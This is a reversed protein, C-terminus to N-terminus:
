HRKHKKKKIKLKHRSIATQKGSANAQTVTVRVPLKGFRRLLRKGKRNLKLKLTVTQGGALSYHRHIVKVTRKRHRKKSTVATVHNGNLKETTTVDINGNCSQSAAGQCSITLQVGDSIAKEGSIKVSGPGSAFREAAGVDVIPASQKIAVVRPQGYVDTSVGPTLLANSGADVTPSAATEHVDGSSANVLQPDACLNGTGAFPTSASGVGCVDSHDATISGTGGGIGFGGLETSGSDGNVISNQLTLQDTTEGDVGAVGGPASNGSVSSNVLTLHFAGSGATAACGAYVGAGEASGGTSPAGITNAASVLDTATASVPAAPAGCNGRLVSLGAGESSASAGAPGPLSNGIFQDAVSTLNVSGLFEGGGGYVSNPTPAIISNGRFVNGAQRGTLQGNNGNGAYLAGGLAHGSGNSKTISNNTFTNGAITLTATHPSPCFFLITVAGGFVDVATTAVTNGSFTSSTISLPRTFPCTGASGDEIALAGASAVGNTSHNGLFRDSDVTPLGVAGAPTLAVASSGVLSYNQFTLSRLTLGNGAGQLAASTVGTGDFGSTTGPAGEITLDNVSPLTFHANAGTCMGNLEITEGTTATALTTGFNACDTTVTAASAPSAAFAAALATVCGM